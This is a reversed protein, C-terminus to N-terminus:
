LKDPSYTDMTASNREVKAKSVDTDLLKQFLEQAYQTKMTANDLALREMIHYGYSSRVLKIQGITMSDAGQVFEKVYDTSDKKFTYGDPYQQLGSTDQTYKKMDADFKSPTKQVEALVTNVQDTVKKLSAGTLTNGSSDKDSFFIHKVRVYDKEYTALDADSIKKVGKDGYYYNYLKNALSYDEYVRQVSASSVNRNAYSGSSGSYAQVAQSDATSKESATLTIKYQKCLGEIIVLETTTKVAQNIAYTKATTNSTVNQTWLASSPTSSYANQINSAVNMLNYIYMGAPVKVGDVKLSWSTDSCGALGVTMSVACLVALARKFTRSMKLGGIRIFKM